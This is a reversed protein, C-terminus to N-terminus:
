WFTATKSKGHTPIYVGAAFEGINAIQLTGLNATLFTRHFFLFVHQMM